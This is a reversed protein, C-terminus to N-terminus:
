MKSRAVQRKRQRPRKQPAPRTARASAPEVSLQTRARLAPAARVGERTRARRVVVALVAVGASPILGLTAPTAAVLKQMTNM